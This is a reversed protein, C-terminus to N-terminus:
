RMSELRKGIEQALATCSSGFISLDSDPSRSTASTRELEAATQRRGSTVPLPCDDEKAEIMQRAAENLVEPTVVTHRERAVETAKGALYKVCELAFPRRVKEGMWDMEGADILDGLTIKFFVGLKAQAADDVDEQCHRAFSFMSEYLAFGHQLRRELNGGNKKRAFALTAEVLAITSSPTGM